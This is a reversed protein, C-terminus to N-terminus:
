KETRVQLQNIFPEYLLMMQYPKVISMRGALSFALTLTFWWKTFFPIRSYWDGLDSM